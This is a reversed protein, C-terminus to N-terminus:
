EKPKLLNYFELLHFRHYVEEEIEEEVQHVGEEEQHDEEPHDGETKHIVKRPGVVPQGEVQTEEEVQSDMQHVNTKKVVRDGIGEINILIMMGEVGEGAQEQECRHLLHHRNLFMQEIRKIIKQICRLVM